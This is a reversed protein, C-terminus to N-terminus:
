DDPQMIGLMTACKIYQERTQELILEPVRPHENGHGKEDAVWDRIIQKDMSPQEQGVYYLAKPWFRSSDPTCVEDALCINGDEDLGFEFKTDALIIGHQDCYSALFTYLKLCYGRLAEAERIGGMGAAEIIKVMQEFTINQDHQGAPAKTTPTFLPLPLKECNRLGEPIPLGCIKREGAKYAKWMSGTIYGRVIFEIPFMKLRKMVVENPACYANIKANPVIHRTKDFFFNSMATLIEGKHKITVGLQEDFASVGDGARLMILKDDDSVYVQRVKGDAIKKTFEM